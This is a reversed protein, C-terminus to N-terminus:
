EFGILRRLLYVKVSYSLMHEYEVLYRVGGIKVMEGIIERKTWYYSGNKTIHMSSRKIQDNKGRKQVSQYVEQEIEDLNSM